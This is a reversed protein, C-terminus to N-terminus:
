SRPLEVPGGGMRDDIWRGEHCFELLENRVFTLIREREGVPYILHVNPGADLSFCLFTGSEERFSRIRSLIELTGAKMLLYGPDSSMMLGHLCLAENETIRIFSKIDNEKLAALLRTYNQGAQEFRARAFPHDEMLAHGASSPIKKVGPDVILIADYLSRFSSGTERELPIAHEETGPVKGGPNGWSVFGGYVSRCASGSGLRALYSAKRYFDEGREKGLIEEELSCLCLALASMGSASSAIGAAHPFTNRTEVRISCTKLFPFYPFLSEMYSGARRAMLHDSRGEFHFELHFEDSGPSRISLSTETCSEELTLSLSPNRPFQGPSKGWYKVLAINAPSRWGAQLTVMGSPLKKVPESTYKKHLDASM